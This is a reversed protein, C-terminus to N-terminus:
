RKKPLTSVFGIALQAWNAISAETKCGDPDVYVLGRLPRGTFDMPRVHKTKLAAQYNEKGTRVMLQDGVIGLCMHGRYLFCLGGFMKKETIDDYQHVVARVRDALSESYAM